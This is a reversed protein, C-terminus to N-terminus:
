VGVDAATSAPPSGPDARPAPRPSAPSVERSADPSAGAPSAGAPTGGDAAASAAADGGADPLPDIGYIRQMADAMRARVANSVADRDDYTLGATPVADLVHVDVVGPRVRWSGKPMIPMTGHMIVPVIPVGAAIALVFPGKKFPRIAYSRGRTGEPFVIVPRGGRVIAAAEEYSAFASKRNEREIPVTGVARAGAGFIPIRLIEAKAVFSYRPLTGGLVFVDYWSVHNSAFVRPERGTGIREGGHVRVRVGGAWLMARTWVRPVWWFVGGPRDPVRLAAALVVLVVFLPTLVLLVLAILLTRM